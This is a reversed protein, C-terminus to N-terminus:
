KSIEIRVAGPDVNVGVAESVYFFPAQKVPLLADPVIRMRLPAIESNTEGVGLLRWRGDVYVEPWKKLDNGSYAGSAKDLGVVLRSPLKCKRALAVVLHMDGSRQNAKNEMQGPAVNHGADKSATEHQEKSTPEAQNEAGADPTSQGVYVENLKQLTQAPETQCVAAVLKETDVAEADANEIPTPEVRGLSHQVDDKKGDPQAEVPSVVASVEVVGADREGIKEFRYSWGVNGLDDTLTTAAGEAKVEGIRQSAADGSLGYFRIEASTLERGTRNAWPLSFQVTVSNKSAEVREGASQDGCGSLMLVGGVFALHVLRKCWQRAHM